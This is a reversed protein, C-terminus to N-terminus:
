NYHKAAGAFKLAYKILLLINAFFTHLFIIVKVTITLTIQLLGCLKLINKGIIKKNGIKIQKIKFNSLNIWNLFAYIIKKQTLCINLIYSYYTIMLEKGMLSFKTKEFEKM